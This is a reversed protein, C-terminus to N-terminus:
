PKALPEVLYARDMELVLTDGNALVRDHLMAVKKGPRSDSPRLGTVHM